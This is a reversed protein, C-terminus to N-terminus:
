GHCVANLNAEQYNGCLIKLVAGNEYGEKTGTESRDKDIHKLKKGVNFDIGAVAYQAVQSDRNGLQFLMSRNMQATDNDKVCIEM